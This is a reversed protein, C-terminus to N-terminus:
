EGGQEDEKQEWDRAKPSHLPHALGSIEGLRLGIYERHSYYKRHVVKQSPYVGSYGSALYSVAAALLYFPWFASGCLEIGLFVATVPMNAASGFVSLTGLAALLSPSVSLSKGLWGGLSAGIDFMPTVEGGQLGAGSTLVTLLFKRISDLPETEGAFGLDMMWTSFGTYRYGGLLWVGALLIGGTVLGFMVPSPFCRAYFQRLAALAAAFLRGVLGFLLSALLVAGTLRLGIEEDPLTIPRLVPGFGLWATVARSCFAALLSYPLLTLRLSGVFCLEAAFVAGALPTSFLASIGAGVGAATVTRCLTEGETGPPLLRRALQYSLAGSMQMTAGARGASGGALQTLLSLGFALPVMRLPLGRATGDMEELVLNGGRRASRGIGAYVVSTIVAALPLFLVLWRHSDRFLVDTSMVTLYLAMLLGVIGGALASLLLGLATRKWRPM